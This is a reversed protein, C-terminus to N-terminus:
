NQGWPGGQTAFHHWMLHLVPSPMRWPPDRTTAILPLAPCSWSCSKGQLAYALMLLCESQAVQQSAITECTDQLLEVVLGKM